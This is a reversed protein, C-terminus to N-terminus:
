KKRLRMISMSTSALIFSIMGLGIFLFWTLIMGIANGVAAGIDPATPIISFFVLRGIIAYFAGLVIAIPLSFIWALLHHKIVKKLIKNSYIGAIIALFCGIFWIIIIISM